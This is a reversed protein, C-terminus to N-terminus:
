VGSQSDPQAGMANLAANYRKIRKRVANDSVGLSRGVASYSSKAVMSKLEDIQPWVIKTISLDNNTSRIIKHKVACDECRRAVRCISAKCDCCTHVKKAWKANKGGFTDTLSHCNPCLLRLNEVCNNYKNGDVHDVQLSLKKGNWYLASCEACREEVLNNELLYRKLRAGEIFRTHDLKMYESFDAGTKAKSRRSFHDTNLELRKIHEKIVGYSAGSWNIQLQVFVNKLSTAKSVAERLEDDTWTRM